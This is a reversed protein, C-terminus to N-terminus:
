SRKKHRRKISKFLEKLKNNKNLYIFNLEEYSVWKIDEIESIQDYNNYNIKINLNCKPVAIYYYQIYTVGEDIITNVIPEIDYLIRFKSEEINTEEFFERVAGEIQSENKHKAGKPIEWLTDSHESQNILNRLRKGNDPFFNNEFKNRKQHYIKSQDTQEGCDSVYFHKMDYKKIPNNRWIRHWLIDFRLSIIDMKEYYSMGSFLRILDSDNAPKYKGVVFNFFQYSVRRKIMLIEFRNNQVPNNRCLAIGYSEKIMKYLNRETNIAFSLM